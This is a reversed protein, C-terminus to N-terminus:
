KISESLIKAVNSNSICGFGRMFGKLPFDNKDHLWIFGEPSNNLRSRNIRTLGILDHLKFYKEVFEDKSILNTIKNYENIVDDM